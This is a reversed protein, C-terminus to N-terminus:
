GFDFDRRWPAGFSTDANKKSNAFWRVSTAAGPRWIAATQDM